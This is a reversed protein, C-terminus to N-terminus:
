KRDNNSKGEREWNKEKKNNSSKASFDQSIKHSFLIFSFWQHSHFHSSNEHFHRFDRTFLKEWSKGRLKKEAAARVVLKLAEVVRADRQCEFAVTFGIAIIVAVLHVTVKGHGVARFTFELALTHQSAHSSRSSPTNKLSEPTIAVVITAIPRVFFVARLLWYTTCRVLELAVVTSANGQSPSAVLFLIAIRAFVLLVATVNSVVVPLAGVIFVSAFILAADGLVPVAVSLGVAFTAFVLHVAIDLAVDPLERTGGFDDRRSFATLVVADALFV